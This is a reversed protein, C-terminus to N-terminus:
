PWLLRVLSVCLGQIEAATQEFMSPTGGIPDAVDDVDSTGLLERRDRHQGLARLWGSLEEDPGRPGAADGRRVLEKLTFTREWTEPMRVVVERVHNRDLGLVLDSGTVEAATGQHSRFSALGTGGYGLAHLAHLTEPPMPHGGPLLGASAVEARVRRSAVLGSLIVQAM